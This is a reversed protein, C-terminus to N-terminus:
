QASHSRRADPERVNGSRQLVLRTAESPRVGNLDRQIDLLLYRGRGVHLACTSADIHVFVGNFSEGRWERIEVPACMSVGASMLRALASQLRALRECDTTTRSIPWGREDRDVWTGRPLHNMM